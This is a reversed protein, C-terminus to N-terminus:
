WFHIDPLLNETFQTMLRIVLLTRVTEYNIQVPFSHWAMPNRVIYMHVYM